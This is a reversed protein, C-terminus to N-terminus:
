KWNAALVADLKSHYDASLSSEGASPPTLTAMASVLNAVQSDLLTKGDATKFQEVHYQNGTFWEKVTVTDQSGLLSVTLDNDNRSFWLSDPNTGPGFNLVDSNGATSDLELITDHGDGLGFLYTDNGAGGMLQDDGQGGILTDNSDYGELVNDADDGRLTLAEQQIQSQSLKTGDAFEIGQLQYQKGAFWDKISVGDGMSGVLVRLDQGERVYQVDSATVGSKFLLRDQHKSNQSDSKDVDLITDHGDGWGYLYTDNGAGGSLQDNGAGGDLVDNVEGGVLQDADSTGLTLAPLTFRLAGNVGLAKRGSVSLKGDFAAKGSGQDFSVGSDTPRMLYNGVQIRDVYLTRKAGDVEAANAFVVDVKSEAGVPLNVKFSYNKLSASTVNVKGVVKGDIRLLMQAGVGDLLSAKARIRIIQPQTATALAM